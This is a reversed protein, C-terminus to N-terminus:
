VLNVIPTFLEYLREFEEKYQRVLDPQSTVAVDEWNGNLAQNTWNLSGMMVVPVVDPNDSCADLLCFKHHMLNTSKMWRVPIGQKELKKLSSGSSFAMDADLILRVKVGKYHQKLVVNTIDSNTMVYMCIDLTYRPTNLYYLFREMSETVMCRSYKSKKMNGNNGPSFFIAEHIEKRPSKKKMSTYFGYVLYSVLAISISLFVKYTM